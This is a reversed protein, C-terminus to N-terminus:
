ASAETSNDAVAQARRSESQIRQIGAATGSGNCLLAGLFQEAYSEVEDLSLPRLRDALDDIIQELTM